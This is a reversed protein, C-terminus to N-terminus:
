ATSTLCIGPFLVSAPFAKHFHDPLFRFEQYIAATVSAPRRGKGSVTSAFILNMDHLYPYSELLFRQQGRGFGLQFSSCTCDLM